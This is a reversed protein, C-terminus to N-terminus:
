STSTTNPASTWYVLNDIIITLSADTTKFAVHELGTCGDADRFRARSCHTGEFLGADNSNVSFTYQTGPVIVGTDPDGLRVSYVPSSDSGGPKIANVTTASTPASVGYNFSKLDWTYGNTAYIRALPRGPCSVPPGQIAQGSAWPSAIVAWQSGADGTTGYDLFSLGEEYHPVIGVTSGDCSTIMEPKVSDFSDEYFVGNDQRVTPPTPAALTSATMAGVLAVSLMNFIMKTLNAKHTALPNRTLHSNSLTTLSDLSNSLM